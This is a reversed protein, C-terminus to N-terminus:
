EATVDKQGQKVRQVAHNGVISGIVGIIIGVDTVEVGYKAELVSFFVALITLVVLGAIHLIFEKKDKDM